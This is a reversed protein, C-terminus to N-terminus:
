IRALRAMGNSRTATEIAGVYFDEEEDDNDDVLELPRNFGYYNCMVKLIDSSNSDPENILLKVILNKLGEDQGMCEATSNVFDDYSGPVASLIDKINTDNKIDVTNINHVTKGVDITNVGDGGDYTFKKKSDGTLQQVSGCSSM